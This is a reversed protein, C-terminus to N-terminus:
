NSTGQICLYATQWVSGRSLPCMRHTSSSFCIEHHYAKTITQSSILFHVLLASFFHSTLATHNRPSTRHNAHYRSVMSCRQGVCAVTELKEYEKKYAKKYSRDSHWSRATPLPRVVSLLIFTHQDVVFYQAAELLEVVPLCGTKKPDRTTVSVVYKTKLLVLYAEGAM